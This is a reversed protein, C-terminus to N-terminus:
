RGNNCGAKNTQCDPIFVNINGFASSTTLGNSVSFAFTDLLDVTGRNTPLIVDAGATGGQNVGASMFVPAPESANSTTASNIATPM